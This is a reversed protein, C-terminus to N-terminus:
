RKRWESPEEVDFVEEFERYFEPESVSGRYYIYAQGEISDWLFDPMPYERGCRYCQNGAWGWGNNPSIYDTCHGCYKCRLKLPPSKRFRRLFSSKWRNVSEDYLGDQYDKSIGMVRRCILLHPYLEEEIKPAIDIARAFHDLAEEYLGQNYANHGPIITRNGEETSIVELMRGFVRQDFTPLDEMAGRLLRRGNSLEFERTVRPKM